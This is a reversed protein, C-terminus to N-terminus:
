PVARVMNATNPRHQWASALEVTMVAPLGVPGRYRLGGFCLVCFGVAKTGTRMVFEDNTLVTLSLRKGHMCYSSYYMTVHGNCRGVCQQINRKPAHHLAVCSHGGDLTETTHWVLCLAFTFHYSDPHLCVPQWNHLRVDM